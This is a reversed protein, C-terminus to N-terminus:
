ALDPFTELSGSTPRDGSAGPKASASAGPVGEGRLRNGTRTAPSGVQLLSQLVLRWYLRFGGGQTGSKPIKEADQPLLM